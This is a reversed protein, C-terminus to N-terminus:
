NHLTIPKAMRLFINKILMPWIDFAVAIDHFTEMMNEMQSMIVVLM